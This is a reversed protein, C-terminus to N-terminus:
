QAKKLCKDIFTKLASPSQVEVIRDLEVGDKYFIMTPIHQIAFLPRVDNRDAINIKTFTVQPYSDSLKNYFPEARRCDICWPAGFSLIILSHAALAEQTQEPTLEIVM